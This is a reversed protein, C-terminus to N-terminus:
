NVAKALVIGEDFFVQKTYTSDGLPKDLSLHIKFRAKLIKTSTDYSIIKMFSTQSTDLSYHAITNCGGPHLYFYQAKIRDKGNINLIAGCSDPHLPFYSIAFITFLDGSPRLVILELQAFSSDTGPHRVFLAPKAHWLETNRLASSFGNYKWGQTPSPNKEMILGDFATSDPTKFTYISDFVTTEVSPAPEFPETQITECAAVSFLLCFIFTNKMKIFKVIIQAFVM